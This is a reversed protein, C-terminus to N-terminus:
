TGPAYSYRSQIESPSLIRYIAGNKDMSELNCTDNIYGFFLSHNERLDEMHENVIGLWNAGRMRVIEFLRILQDDDKLPEGDWSFAPPFVWGRRKSYYLTAPDSFSSSLTVILEGPRTKEKLALGLQHSEWAYPHYMWELRKQGYAFIVFLLIAATMVQSLPFRAKSGISVIAHGALAAAAPNLIHFNWPNEILEKAGVFYYIICSAIWWHFIWPTQLLQNSAPGAPDETPDRRAGPPSFFLGFFFLLIVPPTWIWNIFRNKLQMIFYDQELWKQLGEVWLWNASGAFHYPPYSLSLHRAWMYYGAVPILTIIVAIGIPIIKRAHLEERKRLVAVIAYLMPLGIILGPIKSLFGWIGALVALVLYLTRATQLYVVLLWFSTVVLAVMAPDPLFSREIFISGPLVAMVAAGALARKKDWVRDILCYLAFIGWLGFFVAVSRGVWDHEGAVTYLLAAIYSVTQFERGQYNPGPGDWNLEPYFINWNTHYFNEAMMATSAERWFFADVLPQGIHALRLIAAVMLIGAIPYVHSLSSLRKIM